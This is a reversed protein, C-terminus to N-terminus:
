KLTKILERNYSLMKNQNSLNYDINDKYRLIVINGNEINSDINDLGEAVNLLINSNQINMYINRNKNQTIKSHSYADIYVMNKWTDLLKFQEPSESCSLPIVHHLEFGKRKEVKHENFYNYKENFNRKPKENVIVGNENRQGSFLLLKEKNVLLYPSVKFLHFLQDIKNKWNAFDRKNSKNGIYKNPVMEDKLKNIISKREISSLLRYEKILEVARTTSISYDTNTDVATIFFMFEYKDIYEIDYESNKFIELITELLGGFLLNLAKTFIFMRNLKNEADVFKLGLETLSVYKVGSKKNIDIPIKNINYREILGMRHLDVFINKRLSDQTWKKLKRKIEQCFRAYELEGETNLPRKSSDTNRIQMLKNNQTFSNLTSLIVYVEDLDYRNHESSKNGRYYPSKIREEIFKLAENSSNFSIVPNM